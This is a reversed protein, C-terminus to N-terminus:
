KKEKIPLQSIVEGNRLILTDNEESGLSYMPGLEPIKCKEGVIWAIQHNAMLGAHGPGTIDRARIELEPGILLCCTSFSAAAKYIDLFRHEIDAMKAAGLVRTPFSLTYVSKANADVIGLSSRYRSEKPGVIGYVFLFKSNLPVEASSLGPRWDLKELIARSNFLMMSSPEGMWERSSAFLEEVVRSRPRPTLSFVCCINLHEPMDSYYLTFAELSDM